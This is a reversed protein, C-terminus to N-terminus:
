RQLSSRRMQFHGTKCLFGMIQDVAQLETDIIWALFVIARPCTVLQGGLRQAPNECRRIVHEMQRIHSPISPRCVEM